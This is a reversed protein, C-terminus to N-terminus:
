KRTWPRQKRREEQQKEETTQRRLRRRGGHRLRRRGGYDDRKLQDPIMDNQTHREVALPRVPKSQVRPSIVAQGRLRSLRQPNSIPPSTERRHLNPRQPQRLLRERDNRQGVDFGHFTHRREAPQDPRPQESLIDDANVVLM